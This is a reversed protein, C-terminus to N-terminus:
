YDYNITDSGDVNGCDEGYGHGYGRGCINEGSTDLMYYGDNYGFGGNFTTDVYIGVKSSDPTKYTLYPFIMFGDFYGKIYNKTYLNIKKNHILAHYYYYSNYFNDNLVENTGTYVNDTKGAPHVFWNNIKSM